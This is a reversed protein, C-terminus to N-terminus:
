GRAGTLRGPAPASARPGGAAAPLHVPLVQQAVSCRDALQEGLRIQM